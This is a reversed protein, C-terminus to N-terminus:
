EFRYSKLTLQDTWKEEVAVVAPSPPVKLPEVDTATRSAAQTLGESTQWKGATTRKFLAVVVVFIAPKLRQPM